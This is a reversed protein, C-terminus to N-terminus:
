HSDQPPGAAGAKVASLNTAQIELRRLAAASKTSDLVLRRGREKEMKDNM